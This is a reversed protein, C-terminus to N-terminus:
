PQTGCLVHTGTEVVGVLRLQPFAGTACENKRKHCKEPKQRM